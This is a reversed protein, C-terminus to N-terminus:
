IQIKGALLTGEDTYIDYHITDITRIHYGKNLCWARVALIFTMRYLIGKEFEAELGSNDMPEDFLLTCGWTRGDTDTVELLPTDRWFMWANVAEETDVAGRGGEAWFDIQFTLLIPVARLLNETEGSTDGGEVLKGENLFTKNHSERRWTLGTRYFSVFPFELTQNQAEAALAEALREKQKDFAVDTRAYLVRQLRGDPFVDTLGFRTSLETLLQTAAARIM